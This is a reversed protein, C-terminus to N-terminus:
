FAAAATGARRAEALMVKEGRDAWSAFQADSATLIDGGATEFTAVRDLHEEDVAVNTVANFLNFVTPAAGLFRDLIKKRDSVDMGRDAVIGAVTPLIAPAAIPRGKSARFREVIEAWVEGGGLLARVVDRIKSFLVANEMRLTEPSLLGAEELTKGLHIQRLGLASSQDLVLGNRCVLRFVRPAVALGGNGTESNTVVVGPWIPDPRGDPLAGLDAGLHRNQITLRFRTESMDIRDFAIGAGGVEGAAEVEGAGAETAAELATSLVDLHSIVRYRNSLFARLRSDLVRLLRSEGEGKGLWENVNVALLAPAEERMRDYYIRPIATKEAIQHHANEAIGLPRSLVGQGGDVRLFPGASEGPNMRPLSEFRCRTSPVVADVSNARQRELEAMLGPLNTFRM